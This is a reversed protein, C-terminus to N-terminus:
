LNNEIFRTVQKFATRADEFWHFSVLGHLGSTIHEHTVNVNALSLRHAYMTGEDRLVDHEVTMIYTSPMNSLDEALLPSFYPDTVIREIQEISSDLGHSGIEAALFEDPIFTPPLHDYNILSSTMNEVFDKNVHRSHMVDDLHRLSGHAYSLWFQAM